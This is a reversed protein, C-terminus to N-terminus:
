AEISVTFRTMTDSSIGAGLFAPSILSGSTQLLYPTLHIKRRSINLSSRSVNQYNDIRSIKGSKPSKLTHTSITCLDNAGKAHSLTAPIVPSLSAKTSSRKISVLFIKLTSTNQNVQYQVKLRYCLLGAHGM